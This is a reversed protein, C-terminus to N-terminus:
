RRPSSPQARDRASPRTPPRLPSLGNGREELYRTLILASFETCAAVMLPGSVTTMPSLKIGSPAVGAVLHGGRAPDPGDLLVLRALSFFRILLWLAVCRSPWTPSGARNAELNELLGVGVVALGSATTKVGEPPVYNGELDQQLGEVLTRRAELPSPGTRYILNLSRQNAGVVSAQIDPPAVDFAAQMDAGTPALPSTGPVEMLYGVTTPLSSATLLGKPYRELGHTASDWTFTGLEDTFVDGDPVQIFYGLESSSGTQARLVGLDHIVQTDQNVWKEPDTEIKFRGELLIGALLVGISALAFPIATWAPLSGLRPVFREIRSPPRAVTTPRRYERMGLVSIPIVIAMVLACVVGIALLLGFDRIMPVKSLHLALFAFMAAVTVIILAPGLNALTEAM